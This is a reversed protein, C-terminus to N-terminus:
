LYMRFVASLGQTNINSKKELEYAISFSFNDNIEAVYALNAQAYYSSHQTFSQMNYEAFAYSSTFSFGSKHTAAMVKGKFNLYHQINSSSPSVNYASSFRLGLYHMKSANQSISQGLVGYEQYDVAPLMISTSLIALGLDLNAYPYWRLGVAVTLGNSYAKYKAQMLYTSATVVVRKNDIHNVGYSLIWDNIFSINDLLPIQWSYYASLGYSNVSFTRPNTLQESGSINSYNLSFGYVQTSDVHDFGLNFGYINSEVLIDEINATNKSKFMFPKLWFNPKQSNDAAVYYNAASNNALHTRSFRAEINTVVNNPVFLTAEMNGVVPELEKAQTSTTINTSINDVLTQVEETLNAFDANLQKFVQMQKAINLNSSINPIKILKV